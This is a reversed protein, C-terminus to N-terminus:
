SPDDDVQMALQELATLPRLDSENAWVGHGVPDDVGVVFYKYGAMYGWRDKKKRKAVRLVKNPDRWLKHEGTMKCLSDVRLYNKETM